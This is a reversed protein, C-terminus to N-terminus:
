IFIMKNVMDNEDEAMIFDEGNVLPLQGVNQKDNLLLSDAIMVDFCRQNLSKHYAM